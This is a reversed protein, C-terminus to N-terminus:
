EVMARAKIIRQAMKSNEIDIRKAEERNKVFNLSGSNFKSPTVNLTEFNKINLTPFGKGGPLIKPTM